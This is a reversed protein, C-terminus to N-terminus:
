RPWDKVGREIYKQFSTWAPDWREEAAEVRARLWWFYVPTEPRETMKELVVRAGTLDGNERRTESLVFAAAADRPSRYWRREAELGSFDRGPLAPTPLRQLLLEVAEKKKGQQSYIQALIPWGAEQWSARSGMEQALEARDGKRAWALFLMEQAKTDWDALDPDRARLAALAPLFEEVPAQQLWRAYLQPQSQWLGAALPRLEPAFRCAGVFADLVTKTSTHADVPFKEALALASRFAELAYEPEEPRWEAWALAQDLRIYLISPELFVQKRFEALTEKESDVFFLLNKGRYFHLADDMPVVDLAAEAVALSKEPEVARWLRVIEGKAREANVTAPWKWGALVGTTWLLGGVAVGAAVLRLAWDPKPDTRPHEEADRKRAFALGAMLLFPWATGPRHGPVDVLGHLLFALVAAAAASRSVWGEPNKRPGARLFLLIAGVGGLLLAPVGFEATLWWVDSEPHYAKSPTEITRERFRPMAYYFNGPGTGFLPTAAILDFTDRAMRLRMDWHMEKEERSHASAEPTATDEIGARVPAAPQPTKFRELSKGGTFLLTTAALSVLFLLVLGLRRDPGKWALAISWAVLGVYFIALGGRSRNAALCVMVAAVALLSVLVWPWAKKRGDAAAAGAAAIGGVALWNSMHNVNPFFGYLEPDLGLWTWRQAQSMLALIGLLATLIGWGRMMFIRTKEGVPNSLLWHLWVLAAALLLLSEASVWPQPSWSIGPSVIAESILSQRWASSEGFIGGLYGALGWGLVGWWLVVGKPARAPFGMLAAWISNLTIFIGAWVPNSVGGGWLALFPFVLYGLDKIM